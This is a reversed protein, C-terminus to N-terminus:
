VGAAGNGSVPTKNIHFSGAVGISTAKTPCNPVSCVVGSIGNRGCIPCSTWDEMPAPHPLKIYPNLLDADARGRKYGEDFGDRFGEKYTKLKEETTM